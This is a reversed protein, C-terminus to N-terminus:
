NSFRSIIIMVSNADSLSKILSEGFPVGIPEDRGPNVLKRICWRHLYTETWPSLFRQDLGDFFLNLPIGEIFYRRLTPKGHNRERFLGKEPPNGP